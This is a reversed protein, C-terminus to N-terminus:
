VAYVRQEAGVSRYVKCRDYYHKALIPMDDVLDFVYAHKTKDRMVRGLMQVYYNVMDCCVVLTNLKPADFGVGCKGTTGILVHKDSSPEYVYAGYLKDYEICREDMLQALTDAQEIRKTLLLFYRDPYREVIDVIMRNREPCTSIDNILANWDLKGYRTTKTEPTYGTNVRFVTLPREAHRVVKHPGFYADMLGNLGDLRYPSASLGLLYRPELKWMCQSLVESMIMHCEDVIVFGVFSLQKRTFKRVNIANVIFFDYDREISDLKCDVSELICVKANPCFKCIADKWQSALVLRNVVILTKLKIKTAINISTATNHTVTFDGLLFRGNGDIEFGYYAGQGRETITGLEYVSNGGDTTLEFLSKKQNYTKTVCLGLSYGTQVIYDAITESPTRYTTRSSFANNICDMRMSRTREGWRDVAMRLGRYRSAYDGTTLLTHMPVDIVKGFATDVLTLIHDGNVTYDVGYEDNRITYMKGIGWTTSKVTRPTGDDGMLVDGVKIMSASVTGGHYLVVSTNPHLCKGCGVPLSLICAKHANLLAICEARADKQDAYLQGGTFQAAAGPMWSWTPTPQLPPPRIIADTNNCYYKPLITWEDDDTRYYAYVTKTKTKTKDSQLIQEFTLDSKARDLVIPDIHGRFAYTM